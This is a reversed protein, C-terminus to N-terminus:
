AKLATHEKIAADLDSQIKDRGAASGSYHNLKYRISTVRNYARKVPDLGGRAARAVPAPLGKALAAEERALAKEAARAAEVEARTAERYRALDATHARMHKTPTETIYGDCLKCYTGSAFKCLAYDERLAQEDKFHRFIKAWREAPVIM